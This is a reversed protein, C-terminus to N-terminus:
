EFTVDIADGRYRVTRDAQPAFSFGVPKQKSVLIV